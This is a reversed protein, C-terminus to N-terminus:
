SPLLLVAIRIRRVIAQSTKSARGCHGGNRQCISISILDLDCIRQKLRVAKAIARGAAALAAGTLGDEESRVCVAKVL